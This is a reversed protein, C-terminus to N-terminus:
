PRTACTAAFAALDTATRAPDDWHVVHGSGEHVLLTAHPFAAALREQDSRPLVRDQDGWVVLVPRHRTRPRGAAARRAPRPRDRAM